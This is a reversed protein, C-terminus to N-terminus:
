RQIPDHPLLTKRVTHPTKYWRLSILSWPVVLFLPIFTLSYIPFTVMAWIKKFAPADIENWAAIVTIFGLGFAIGMFEFLYAGLPQWTMWTWLPLNQMWTIQRYIIDAVSFYIIFSPLPTIWLFLDLKSFHFRKVMSAILKGGHMFFIQFSGKIWRLRQRFSVDMRLPQEDYFRAERVFQIRRNKILQFITFEVDEILSLASWPAEIIIQNPVMFGTGNIHTSLGLHNRAHHLFHAERFFLISSGSSTWNNDFNKSGRYGIYITDHDQYADNIRQTFQPDVVNDADFFIVGDSHPGPYDNRLAILRKLGLGKGNQNPLNNIFTIAGHAQAIKATDDLCNDALVFIRLLHAPYNQRKLSDILDGIVVAENKALILFDFRQLKKNPLFTKPKTVLAVFLYFIHLSFLVTVLLRVVFNLM